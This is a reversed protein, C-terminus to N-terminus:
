ARDRAPTAASADPEAQPERAAREAEIAGRQEAPYASLPAPGGYLAFGLLLLVGALGWLAGLWGALSPRHTAAASPAVLAHM